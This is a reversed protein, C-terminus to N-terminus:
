AFRKIATKKETRKEVDRSLQSLAIIPIKSEKAFAKIQRVIDSVEQFRNEIRKQSSRMLQLYDIVILKVDVEIQLRRVKARLELPSLSPSDDIYLPSDSLTGLAQVLDKYEHELLNATRLRKSDLRSEASLLRLALQEKPMELSFVATAHKKKLAANTAFNLALTTKGMAPRAALIILDGAQFGSTLADLDPFGSPIGLIKEETDYVNQINDFVVKLVSDLKAFDDRVREKSLELISKQAYELVSDSENEEEFAQKIIQSGADIVRRLLYKESVINAYNEINAATPVSDIVDALYSRGGAAELTNNKKLEASVTVLDAPENKTYLGLIAAFIFGHADRYFYDAKVRGAAIAIADKSIMMSGLVSQEAELDQPPIKEEM